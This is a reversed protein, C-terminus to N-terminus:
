AMAAAELWVVAAREVFFAGLRLGAGLLRAEGVPLCFSWAQDPTADVFGCARGGGRDADDALRDCHVAEDLLRAKMAHTTVGEAM